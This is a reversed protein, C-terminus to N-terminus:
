NQQGPLTHGLGLSVQSSNWMRRLGERRLMQLNLTLLGTALDELEVMLSTQSRSCMLYPM